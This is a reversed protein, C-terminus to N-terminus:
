ARIEQRMFLIYAAAFCIMTLAVLGVTQPWAVLLSQSLSLTSDQYRLPSVLILSGVAPQDPRLLSITADEYLQNPALRGLRDELRYHRVAEDLTPQSPLPALSNSVIGLLLGWFITLVVWIAFTVLASTAARKFVVSFLSSLGLWFSVYVLTVLLWILMRAIEEATPVLGLRLMGLGAVLLTLATLALGIVTLGAAFKGNIVDDRHIPQSVLRPLTGPSREGNVADFGFAIGLVPAVIGVLRLFSLPLNEPSVTFLLLFTGPLGSAAPAADRISSAASYISVIAVLGVLALLITFRVSLLHDALEKAAVIRWGPRRGPLTAAVQEAEARAAM